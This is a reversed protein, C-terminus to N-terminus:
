STRSSRPRRGRDEHVRGLGGERRARDRRCRGRDEQSIISGVILPISPVTGTVDRLAYIKKDAPDIRPSQAVVAIGIRQVQAVFEEPTSSSGFARSDGRAQGAHRGHARPRAREDQGGARRVGLGAARAGADDHGRRRRHLAQGGQRGSDGLPGGRRGLRGDGRDDGRDGRCVARPPAGGHAVGVDPLRADRRHHLRRRDARDRGAHARPRRAQARDAGRLEATSMRGAGGRPVVHRAPLAGAHGYFDLVTEGIDSFTSRIGLDVGRDVGKMYAILPTYERSHDTSPTTPDCGHDATIILLDGDIMAGLLEPMRADVAELGRAYGEFDNRHGWVMDFDVLNAFVFGDGDSAVREILHDVGNMNDTSHPSECIGRWAFIEGIKGIGYSLIGAEALRDLVTPESPELAFDRRRHTRTTPARRTRARHVAARHDPGGCHEGVLVKTRAIECIEYLREIPIVDEHAAIQFVSDASTYIIPKGTAVHEDGLEQIIVTGSAAYNGLWGLGTERTFADLVEPPFGDPLHPVGHPAAAGDDGLSRDHHGQRRVGRREQGVVGDPEGIPPVGEVRTINGIGMRGLNPLSLGGVAAATNGLTNSGEDGYAAADPLEGVGVSDLVLM